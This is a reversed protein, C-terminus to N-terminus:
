AATSDALAAAKDGTRLEIRMRLMAGFGSNEDLRIYKFAHAYDNALIFPIACSRFASYGPDFAITRNFCPADVFRMLKCARTDIKAQNGARVSILRM